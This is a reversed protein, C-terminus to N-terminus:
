RKIEPSTFNFLIKGRHARIMSTTSASSFKNAIPSAFTCKSHKYNENTIKNQYKLNSFLKQPPSFAKRTSAERICLTVLIPICFLKQTSVKMLGYANTSLPKPHGPKRVTKWQFQLHM